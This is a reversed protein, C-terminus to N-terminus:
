EMAIQECDPYIAEEDFFIVMLRSFAIGYKQMTKVIMDSLCISDKGGSFSLAVNQHKNFCELIRREAAQVVNIELEKIFM